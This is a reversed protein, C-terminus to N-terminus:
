SKPDRLYRGALVLAAGGTLSLVGAGGFWGLRVGTPPLPERVDTAVSSAHSGGDTTCHRCVDITATNVKIGAVTPTGVVEVVAKGIPFTAAYAPAIGLVSLVALVAALALVRRRGRRVSIIEM